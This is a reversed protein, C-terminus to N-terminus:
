YFAFAALNDNTTTLWMRSCGRADADVFCHELLARGV